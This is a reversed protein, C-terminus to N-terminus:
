ALRFVRGSIEQKPRVTDTIASRVRCFTRVLNNYLFFCPYHFVHVSDASHVEISIKSVVQKERRLTFGHACILSNGNRALALIDLVFQFMAM